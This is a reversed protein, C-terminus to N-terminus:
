RARHLTLCSRTEGVVLLRFNTVPQTGFEMLEDLQDPVLAGLETLLALAARRGARQGPPRDTLKGLDGDAIKIAVGLGPSGPGLAGPM